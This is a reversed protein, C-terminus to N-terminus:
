TYLTYPNPLDCIYMINEIEMTICVNLLDNSPSVILDIDISLIEKLPEFESIINNKQCQVANCVFYESKKEDFVVFNIIKVYRGNKLKAFSSNMRESRCICSCYLYDEYLFRLFGFEPELLFDVQLYDSIIGKEEDTVDMNCFYHNSEVSFGDRHVSEFLDEYQM